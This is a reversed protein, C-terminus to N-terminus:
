KLLFIQIIVSLYSMLMFLSVLIEATRLKKESPRNIISIYFGLTCVFLIIILIYTWWQAHIGRLLLCQTCIGALLLVNVLVISPIFGISKSYSDITAKEAETAHIKRAIEFSFGGWISLMCLLLLYINWGGSEVMGWWLWAIIFPMILMHTFAYALLSKKLSAAIFFEYRMLLSYAIAILWCFLCMKDATITWAAEILFSIAATAQLQKLSIRGSQLVRQPHNISDIVFDKMEDFVRLRFFFSITAVIGGSIFFINGSLPSLIQTRFAIAYVTLFLIAFLLMNVVPFREKLYDWLNAFSVM